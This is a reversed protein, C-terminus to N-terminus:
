EGKPIVAAAEEPFATNLQTGYIGFFSFGIRRVVAAPGWGQIPIYLPLSKSGEAHSQEHKLGLRVDVLVASNPPPSPPRTLFTPAILHTTYNQEHTQAHACEHTCTHAHRSGEAHPQEHKM